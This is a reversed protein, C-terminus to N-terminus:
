AGTHQRALENQLYSKHGGAALIRCESVSPMQIPRREGTDVNHLTASAWDVSVTQWRAVLDRIGPCIIQPFGMATEGRYYTPAFSEAIVAAIGMHRMARMPPSHPHGFGFNEGGVLVDGPKVAEAFAPDYDQMAVACLEDLDQIRINKVGIIQDIDFDDDEFIYAVRGHIRPMQALLTQDLTSM